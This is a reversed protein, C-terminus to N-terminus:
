PHSTQESAQDFTLVHYTSPWLELSSVDNRHPTPNIRAGSQERMGGAGSQEHIGGAGSREHIGGAGSREHM